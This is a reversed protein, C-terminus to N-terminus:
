GKPQIGHKDALKEILARDLSRLMAATLEHVSEDRMGNHVEICNCLLLAKEIHEISLAGERGYPRNETSIFPHTMFYALPAGRAIEADLYGVMEYINTRLRKAEAFQAESVNAATIHIKCGDEPFTTTIESSIFVDPLGADLLELVGDISNHDTLTILTMGRERLLRYLELPESHSEPIAFADAAYYGTVNSAHSHLHFDVKGIAKNM